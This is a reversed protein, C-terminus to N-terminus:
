PGVESLCRRVLVETLHRRYEASGRPDSRVDVTDRAVRAAEAISDEDFPHGVLVQSADGLDVALSPREGVVIRASSVVAGEFRVGCAVNLIALDYTTRAFKRFAARGGDVPIEVGTVVLPQRNRRTSYFEGLPMQKAAGDYFKVSADIALMVPVVDSLRGRALHGGISAANRHLPSAVRRLMTHVVGSWVSGLPEYELMETLTVTAGISITGDDRTIGDLSAGSLDILTDVEAPPHLSLDTGGGMLRARSGLSTLLGFAEEVSGSRVYETIM